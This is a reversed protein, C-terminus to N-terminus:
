LSDTPGCRETCVHEPFMQIFTRELYRKAAALTSFEKGGELSQGWHRALFRGTRLKTVRSYFPGDATFHVLNYPEIAHLRDRCRACILLHQEFLAIKDPALRGLSYTELDGKSQHGAAEHM